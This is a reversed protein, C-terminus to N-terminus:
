LRLRPSVQRSLWRRRASLLGPRERPPAPSSRRSAVWVPDIKARVRASNSRGLGSSRPRRRSGEDLSSVPEGIRPVGRRLRRLGCRAASRSGSAACASASRGIRALRDLAFQVRFVPDPRAYPPQSLAVVVLGGWGGVGVLVLLSMCTPAPPQPRGPVSCARADAAAHGRVQGQRGRECWGYEAQEMGVGREGSGGQDLWALARQALEDHRVRRQDSGTSRSPLGHRVTLGRRVGLNLPLEAQEAAGYRHGASACTGVAAVCPGAISSSPGPGMGCGVRGACAGAEARRARTPQAM